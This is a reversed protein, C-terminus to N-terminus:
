SILVRHSSAILKWLIHIIKVHGLCSIAVFVFCAFISAFFAFSALAGIEVLLFCTRFLRLLLLASM